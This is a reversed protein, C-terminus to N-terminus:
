VVSKRDIRFGGEGEILFRYLVRTDDCVISAEYFDFYADTRTKTMLTGVELSEFLLVVRKASNKLARLRITVSDGPDPESPSRFFPTEDSFIASLVQSPVSM